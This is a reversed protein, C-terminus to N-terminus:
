AYLCSKKEDDLFNVLSCAPSLIFMFEKLIEPARALEGGQDTFMEQTPSAIECLSIFAIATLFYIREISQTLFCMEVGDERGFIGREGLWSYQVACM